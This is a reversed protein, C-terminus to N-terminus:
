LVSSLARDPPRSLPRAPSLVRTEVGGEVHERSRGPGCSGSFNFRGGGGTVPSDSPTRIRTKCVTFPREAEELSAEPESSIPLAVPYLAPLSQSACVSAQVGTRGSAAPTAM